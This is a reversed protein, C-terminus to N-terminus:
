DGFGPLPYLIEGECPKRTEREVEPNDRSLFHDPGGRQVGEFGEGARRGELQKIKRQDDEIEERLVEMIQGELFAIHRTLEEIEWDDLYVERIRNMEGIDRALYSIYAQNDETRERYFETLLSATVM